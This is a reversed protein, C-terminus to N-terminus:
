PQDDGSPLRLWLRPGVQEVRPYAEMMAAEVTPTRRTGNMQFDTTIMFAFGHARIMEVLPAEDWTGAVAMQEAMRPEYILSKGARMIVVMNESSVPKEAAAIREVLAAQAPGEKAM